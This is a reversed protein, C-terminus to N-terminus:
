KGCVPHLQSAHARLLHRYLDLYFHRSLLSSSSVNVRYSASAVYNYNIFRYNDLEGTSFEVLFMCKSHAKWNFIFILVYRNAPSVVIGFTHVHTYTTNCWMDPPNADPSLSFSLGYKWLCHLWHSSTPMSKGTTVCIHYRRHPTTPAPFITEDCLPFLDNSIRFTFWGLTVFLSCEYM